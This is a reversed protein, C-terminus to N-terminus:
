ASLKWSAKQIGSEFLRERNGGAEDVELADHGSWPIYSACVSVEEVKPANKFAHFLAPSFAEEGEVQGVMCGGGEAKLCGVERGKWSASRVGPVAPHAGVPAPPVVREEEQQFGAMGDILGMVSACTLGRM